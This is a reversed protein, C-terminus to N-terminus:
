GPIARRTLLGADQPSLWRHGYTVNLRYRVADQEPVPRARVADSTTLLTSAASVVPDACERLDPEDSIHQTTASYHKTGVSEMLAKNYDEDDSLTFTGTIRFLGVVCDVSSLLERSYVAPMVTRFPPRKLRWADYFGFASCMLDISARTLLRQDAADACEAIWQCPVYMRHRYSFSSLIWNGDEDTTPESVITRLYHRIM